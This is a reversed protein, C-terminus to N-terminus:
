QFSLSDISGAVSSSVFGPGIHEIVDLAKVISFAAVAIKTIDARRSELLPCAAKVFRDVLDLCFWLGM